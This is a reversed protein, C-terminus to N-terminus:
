LGLIDGKCYADDCTHTNHLTIKKASNKSIHGGELVQRNCDPPPIKYFEALFFFWPTTYMAMGALSLTSCPSGGAEGGPWPHAQMIPFVMGDWVWRVSYNTHVQRRIQLMEAWAVLDGIARRALDGGM